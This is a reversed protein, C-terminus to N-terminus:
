VKPLDVFHCKLNSLDNRIIMMLFFFIVFEGMFSSRCCYRLLLKVASFAM